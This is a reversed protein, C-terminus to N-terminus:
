AVGDPGSGALGLWACLEAVHAAAAAPSDFGIELTRPQTQYEPRRLLDLVWSDEEIRWNRDALADNDSLHLAIVRPAIADVYADRDFGLVNASVNLHGVDLLVGLNDRDVEAILADLEGPLVFPLLRNEGDVLNKAEVPHNEIAISVGREAAHDCVERLNAVMAARVVEPPQIPGYKLGRGLTKVELEAAFGAHVAYFSSGYRANLDVARRAMALSLAQNKPDSSALNLVFPPDAPPFYNHVNLTAPHDALAQLEAEDAPPCHSLEVRPVGAEYLADVMATLTEFGKLCSTSVTFGPIDSM